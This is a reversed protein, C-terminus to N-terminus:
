WISGPITSMIENVLYVVDVMHPSCVESLNTNSLDFSDTSALQDVINNLADDRPFMRDDSDLIRPLDGNAVLAFSGTRRIAVLFHDLEERSRRIKNLESWSYFSNFKGFLSNSSLYMLQSERIDLFSLADYYAKTYVLYVGRFTRKLLERKQQQFLAKTIMRQKGSDALDIFEEIIGQRWESLHSQLRVKAMIENLYRVLHTDSVITITHYWMPAIKILMISILWM